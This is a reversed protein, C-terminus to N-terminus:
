NKNQNDRIYDLADQVTKMKPGMKDDIEIDFEDEFAMVLEVVDLSDAKLDTEFNTEPTIKVDKLELKSIILDKLTPFNPDETM